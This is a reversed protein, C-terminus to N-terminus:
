INEFKKPYIWGKQIFGLKEFLELSKVYNWVKECLELNTKHKQTYVFNPIIPCTPFNGFKECLELKRM